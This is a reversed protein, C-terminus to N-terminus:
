SNRCNESTPLHHRPFNLHGNDFKYVYYVNSCVLYTYHIYGQCIVIYGNYRILYARAYMISDTICEYIFCNISRQNFFIFIGLVKELRRQCKEFLIHKYITKSRLLSNQKEGRIILFGFLIPISYIAISIFWDIWFKYIKSGTHSYYTDLTSWNEGKRSHSLNAM